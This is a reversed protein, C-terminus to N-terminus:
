YDETDQVVISPVSAQMGMQGISIQDEAGYRVAQELKVTSGNESSEGVGASSLNMIWKYFTGAGASATTVAEKDYPTILNMAKTITKKDINDYNLKRIRALLSDRGARRMLTQLYDWYELTDGTEGLLLFTAKMIDYIIDKPVQYRHIESITSQKMALVDHTYKKLKRLKELIETAEAIKVQLNNRHSSASAKGIADELLEINERLIATKLGKQLRLFEIRYQAQQVIGTTDEVDLSNFKDLAKQIAVSDTSTLLAQLTDRAKKELPNEYERQKKSPDESSLLYNCVNKSPGDTNKDKANVQLAYEGNKPVSVHLTLTNSTVKQVIHEKLEESPIINHVLSANVDVPKTLNFIMEVSQRGRIGVVGKNHTEPELGAEKTEQTPGFGLETNIPFPECRLRAKNCVIKFFCIWEQDSDLVTLKYIGKVPFRMDFMTKDKENMIAVYKDLQIDAPIQDESEKHNFFLAYTLTVPDAGALTRLAISCKGERTQVIGGTKSTVQLQRIFYAPRFLPYSIFKRKSLPMQILQWSENDPFCRYIFDSPDTLFYYDNVTAITVGVSEEEKQRVAQGKTEVLTWAGTSKGVVASMAWLPFVIRWGKAVYVANWTNRLGDVDQDGVEYLASKAFGNIIVCPVKAARCMITFMVSHSIQNVSMLKLHGLPSDPNVNNPIVHQDKNSAIWMFIARAKLVDNGKFPEVLKKVLDPMTTASEPSVSKAHNDAAKTDLDKLIDAKKNPPPKPLPYDKIFDPIDAKDPQGQQTPPAVIPPAPQTLPQDTVKSSKGGM